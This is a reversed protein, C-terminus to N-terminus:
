MWDIPVERRTPDESTWEVVRLVNEGLNECVDIFEDAGNCIVDAQKGDIMTTVAYKTMEREERKSVYIIYCIYSLFYLYKKFFDLIFLLAWILRKKSYIYGYVRPKM